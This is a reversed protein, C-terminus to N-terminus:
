FWGDGDHETAVIDYLPSLMKTIHYTTLLSKFMNESSM